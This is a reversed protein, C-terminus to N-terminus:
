NLRARLEALAQVCTAEGPLLALAQTFEEVAAAVRGQQALRRGQNMFPFHRPEYRAARKAKEFWEGAEDLRGLKMLYAGIDNYPNGFSADVAIARKCESIAEDIRGQFSYAWGRYTHAEATPFTRISESYLAIAEDLRGRLQQEQGQQWLAAARRKRAEGDSM